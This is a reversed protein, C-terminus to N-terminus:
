TLTLDFSQQDENYLRPVSWMSLAADETTADNDTAMSIHKGQWQRAIVLKALEIGAKLLKHQTNIQKQTFM